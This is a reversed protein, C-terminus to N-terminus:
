RGVGSHYHTTCYDELMGTPRGDPDFVTAEGWECECQNPSGGCCECADFGCRCCDACCDCDPCEALYGCMPSERCAINSM